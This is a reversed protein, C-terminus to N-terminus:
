RRHFWAWITQYVHARVGLLLALALALGPLFGNRLVAFTQRTYIERIVTPPAGVARLMAITRQDARVRSSIASNLLVAMLVTFLALLAGAGSLLLPFAKGM